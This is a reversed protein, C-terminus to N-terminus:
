KRRKEAPERTAGLKSLQAATYRWGLVAEKNWNEKTLLSWTFSEPEDFDVDAPWKICVAGKALPGKCRPSQKDTTGNAIQVVEGVCWINVAKRKGREGERTPRWYRWRIELEKGILSDDCPPAEKPMVDATCDLEGITELRAREKEARALLEDLPLELCKGALEEAQPTATGLELFTKRRMTPVVAADPLSGEQLREQEELLIEKLHATLDDVSGIVEDKSSSWKTRFEDFGLGVVRMEIQERLYDLKLQTSSIEDLAAVMAAPSAVGTTKWRDYFSLALAYQKILAALEIEANTKRRQTHYADLGAHDARDVARMEKVTSRAMEVLAHAEEHPLSDVYGGPALRKAHIAQTLASAAEMSIGPFRCLVSDYIGFISECLRDNTADVGACDAHAQANKDFAQAGDQSALHKAISRKKDRMAELGAVMQYELYEVTKQQVIPHANTPDSPLLIEKRALQWMLHKTKGDPGLCSQKTFMYERWERFLPQQEAIEKFIDLEPDLLTAGNIAANAMAEEALDLAGKKGVTGLSLPSFNDLMYAKGALWRLPRSILMDVVANARLMAVYELASLTIYLFDELVNSHDAGFVHLHLFDVMHKRLLYIPVSADFDLDQRGGDARELHMVFALPHHEKLWVWFERGKGKYYKNGHHFEKYCARLLQDFDTTMRDWSSFAALHDKLEVALHKSMAKSMPGLFINRMHNHCDLKHCRVEHQQEEKTLANWAAAGMESQKAQAVMETLIEKTLQATNCTDGQLAGGGALRGLSLLKADPGTWEYDPYLRRCTAKWRTLFDRGRVFCKSEIAAAIAAATGGSSCYAGRLVVLKLDAGPTPQILVNSTIGANGFKTTEDSGLVRIRHASAVERAACAEVLTRLEFRCDALMRASPAVPKLWPATAKVISLLNLGIASQPTANEMQSYIVRRYSQDYARGGGRGRSSQPRWTPMALVKALASAPTETEEEEVEMEYYELKQKTEELEDEKEHLRKLRNDSLSAAKEVKRARARACALREAYEAHVEDRVTAAHEEIKRKCASNVAASMEKQRAKSKVREDVRAATAKKNNSKARAAAHRWADQLRKSAAQELDLQAELTEVRQSLRAIVVDSPQAEEADADLQLLRRLAAGHSLLLQAVRVIAWSRYRPPPDRKSGQRRPGLPPKAIYHKLLQGTLGNVFGDSRWAQMALGIADLAPEPWAVRQYAHMLPDFISSVQYQGKPWKEESPVWAATHAEAEPAALIASKAWTELKKVAGVHTVCLMFAWLLVESM